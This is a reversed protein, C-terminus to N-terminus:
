NKIPQWFKYRSIEKSEDDLLHQLVELVAMDEKNLIGCYDWKAPNSINELRKLIEEPPNVTPYSIINQADNLVRMFMRAYTDYLIKYAKLEMDKSNKM